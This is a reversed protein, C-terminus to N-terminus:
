VYYNVMPASVITVTGSPADLALRVFIRPGGVWEAWDPSPDAIADIEIWSVTVDYMESFATGGAATATATSDGVAVGGPGEIGIGNVTAASSAVEYDAGFPISGGGIYDVISFGSWTYIVSPWEHFNGEDNSIAPDTGFVETVRAVAAAPDTQYDFTDTVAGESDLISWSARSIVILDPVPVPDDVVPEVTETPKPSSSAVPVAPPVTPTCAALTALVVIALLPTLTRM